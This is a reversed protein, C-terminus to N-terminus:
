VQQAQQLSTTKIACANLITPTALLTLLSFAAIIQKQKKTQRIKM